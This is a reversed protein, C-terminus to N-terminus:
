RWSAQDVPSHVLEEVNAAIVNYGINGYLIQRGENLVYTPSGEVKYKSQLEIDKCLLAMAEGNDLQQLLTAIPLSHREAIALQVTREATNELDRFFAVRLAWIVSEFLTRGGLQAQPAADILEKRQLLQVAKLFHHASASTAPINKTWIDPHVTVHPFQESIQKVNASYGGFGGKDKWGEAIRRQTCGFVPIFHHHIAIDSAYHQQLEDLRIQAAYAWVCLLDSFYEIRITKENAIALTM